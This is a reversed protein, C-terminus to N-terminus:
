AGFFTLEKKLSFPLLIVLIGLLAPTVRATFDSDGFLFFVLANLHFLFPGHLMPDYKYTLINYLDYSYRAYQSEDHHYPRTGLDYFRTFVAFIILGAILLSKGTIKVHDDFKMM